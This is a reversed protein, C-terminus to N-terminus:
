ESNSSLYAQVTPFGLQGNMGHALLVRKCLTWTVIELWALVLGNALRRGGERLWFAQFFKRNVKDWVEGENLDASHM